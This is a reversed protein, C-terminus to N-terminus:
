HSAQAINKSYRYGLWAGALLLLLAILNWLIDYPLLNVDYRIQHIRLLKHNIIGDFLQFGGMGFLFGAIAPTAILLNNRRLDLLAMFGATLCLLEAAHLIGDSILGLTPTLDYFHHWGLLQHFIIEDIAAVFGVGVLVGARM